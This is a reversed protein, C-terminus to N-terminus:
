LHCQYLHSTHAAGNVQVVHPAALADRSFGCKELIRRSGLNHPSIWANLMRLGYQQRAVEMLHALALSGLGQRAHSHAIRYGVEGSGAAREIRRLNARGLIVAGDDSTLVCPHMRGAAHSDLCDAIHAQVGDASYFAPDRAEVHQEFWSRNDLEFALLRTDDDAQLLRINM